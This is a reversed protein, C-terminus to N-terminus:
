ISLLQKVKQWYNQSAKKTGREGSCWARSITEFSRGKTYHLFVKRSIEYDYMDILSLKLGTEANYDQLRCLRVQFCGYAGEKVNLAYRNGNSEVQVIAKILNDYINLPERDAIYIMQNPPATLISFYLTLLLTTIMKKFM